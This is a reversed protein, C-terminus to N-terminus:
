LKNLFEIFVQKNNKVSNFLNNYIPHYKLSDDPTWYYCFDLYKQDFEKYNFHLFGKSMEIYKQQMLNFGNDVIQKYEESWGWGQKDLYSSYEEYLIELLEMKQKFSINANTLTNFIGDIFASEFNKIKLNTIINKPKRYISLLVVDTVEFGNKKFKKATWFEEQNLSERNFTADYNLEIFGYFNGEKDYIYYQYKKNDSDM